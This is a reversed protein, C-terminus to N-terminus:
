EHEHSVDKRREPAVSDSIIEEADIGDRDNLTARIRRITADRESVAINLLGISQTLDGVASDRNELLTEVHTIRERLNNIEAHLGDTIKDHSAQLQELLKTYADTVNAVLNNIQELQRNEAHTSAEKTDNMTKLALAKRDLLVKGLTGLTAFLAILLGIITETM